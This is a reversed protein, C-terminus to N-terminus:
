VAVGADFKRSATVLASAIDAETKAQIDPDLFVEYVKIALVAMGTPAKPFRVGPLSAASKSIFSAAARVADHAVRDTVTPYTFQWQRVRENIVAKDPGGADIGAAAFIRCDYDRCTQPRHDYISCKGAKLMPCTGDPLYDMLLNGQPSGEAQVLHQAPILALAAKDEPRVPIYYSSVCCGVCDGCPVDAGVDGRLSARAQALWTGFPGAAVTQAATSLPPSIM